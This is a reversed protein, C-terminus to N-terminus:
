ETAAAEMFRKLVAAVEARTASGKPDATNGPKGSIVGAQQMAYLAERAYGSIDADDSFLASEKTKPLDIDMFRAYRYLIVAMDQRTVDRDPAFLNGGVGSVIGNQKAWEVFAAYYQEEAVDGFSSTAYRSTDAGALRGLVTVLMGRTMPTQPSFTTASTGVFLGHTYAFGVDGSFWDDAKVDAFPNEFVTRYGLPVDEDLIVVTGERISLALGSSLNASAGADKPPTVTGNPAITTGGPATIITGSETVIKASGSAPVSTLGERNITTGGSVSIQADNGPLGIGAEKGIPISILGNKDITAGEPATVTLGEPAKIVGGGPLTITGDANTVPPKGDPTTITHNHGGAASSSGGGSGGGSYTWNAVVTVPHDPMTFGATKSSVNAITVDSSTWGTFSYNSRNGAKITVPDGEEYDGAGDAGSGGGSITVTYTKPVVAKDKHIATVTVAEGPMIFATASENEDLFTGGGSSEWKDFEKDSAPTDATIPVEANEAYSGSGTGNNVTLTYKTVPVDTVTVTASDSKSYDDSATATVTLSTATEDSAVTLEGDGGIKTDDSSNGSVVWSVENDTHGNSYNVTATFTETDGKQVTTSAPSVTVGTVTPATADITISLAQTDDGGGNTAKVTFNETGAAEPTGSIEGTAADLSLGAPLSGSDISWTISADGTAALTRSYAEGVTGDVLTTTTIKPAVPAPPADTVTLNITTTAPADSGVVPSTPYQLGQPNYSVTLTYPTASAALSELYAGEFTITDGSVTYDTDPTLAVTGNKVGAITNGNLDVAADKGQNTGKIYTISATDQASDEFVVIGATSIIDSNSAEDTLRAYVVYKGPQITFGASYATWTVSALEAATKGSDALHYEVTVSGGSNDSVDEIAVTQTNKCFLGFTITNIFNNWSHTGLKITATPPTTDAATGVVLNFSASTAGDVTVTLPYTGAPTATTTNLTLTGANGAVTINDATIGAPTGTLSPTYAGDTINATTVTFTVSGAAGATLTGSQSSVSVTKESAAATTFSRTGDATMANGAADKFGSINVAYSTSNALGTYPVTYTMANTWTGGILAPLSNLQVTGAATSDMAESFTIIVTGILAVDTGSPTVYSVTPPTTDAAANTTENLAPSAASAYTDATEAVRQYFTYATSPILGSFVNDAKWTTGGMSFEYLANAALTVSNHTKGTLTPAVPASATKKLVAATATSTVTGTEVSSAIELTVTKGLDATQVTYTTSNGGAATGNVKWTYTLTGTNNGGALSGTLVDGIRPNMNSVTATGTLTAADVVLNFSSSTVGDITVTLPHTGTPTAATTTVTIVTSNSTTQATSSSLAIGAVSNTNNLTVTTGNAINATTVTFTVSGPTGATLTGTQASVSATKSTQLHSPMGVAEGFGPLKGNEATWPNGDNVFLGFLTGDANIDTKSKAAGDVKDAGEDLTKASGDITVAMGGFAINGSLTGGNNEGAVRGAKDGLQIATVSPNLAACDQVTGNIVSGAVGGVYAMGSVAGTAYCSQVTGNRVSGVVGGTYYGGSSVAGTVYCNQVTGYYVYGAVGGTYYGGSSVAGVVGLNKVTATDGVGGVVGGFLGISDYDPIEIYDTNNVYLGSITKGNGDFNGRFHKLQTIGHGIPIWGKGGNFSTVGQGYGASLDLSNM